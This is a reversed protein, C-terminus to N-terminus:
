SRGREARRRARRRAKWARRERRRQEQRGTVRCAEACYVGVGTFSGGCLNCVKPRGARARSAAAAAASRRRRRRCEEDDCYRKPQGPAGVLRVFTAGCAACAVQVPEATM